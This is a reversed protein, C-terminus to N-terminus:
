TVDTLDVVPVVTHLWSRKCIAAVVAQVLNQQGGVTSDFNQAKRWVGAIYKMKERTAKETAREPTLPYDTMTGTWRAVIVMTTVTATRLGVITGNLDRGVDSSM